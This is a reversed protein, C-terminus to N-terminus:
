SLTIHAFVDFGRKGNLSTSNQHRLAFDKKMLMTYSSLLTESYTSLRAYQENLQVFTQLIPSKVTLDVDGMEASHESKM